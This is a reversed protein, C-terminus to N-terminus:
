CVRGLVTLGHSELYEIELKWQLHTELFDEIAQEVMIETASDHFLM